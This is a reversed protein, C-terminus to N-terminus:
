AGTVDGTDNSNPIFLNWTKAQRAPRKIKAAKPSAWYGL